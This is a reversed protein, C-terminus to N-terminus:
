FIILKIKHVTEDQDWSDIAWYRLSIIAALMPRPSTLHLTAPSSAGDFVGHVPGDGTQTTNTLTWNPSLTSGNLLTTWTGGLLDVETPSLIRLGLAVAPLWLLLLLCVATHQSM